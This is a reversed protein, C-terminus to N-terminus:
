NKKKKVIDEEYLDKLKFDAGGYQVMINSLTKKGRRKVESDYNM